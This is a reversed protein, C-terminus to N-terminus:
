WQAESFSIRALGLYAPALKSDNDLARLFYAEAQRLRGQLRSIEGLNLLAPAQWATLRRRVGSTKGRPLAKKFCAAAAQLQNKELYIEGARYPFEPERAYAKAGRELAKLAGGREGALL